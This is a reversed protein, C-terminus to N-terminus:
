MLSVHLKISIYYFGKYRQEIWRVYAKALGHSWDKTEKHIHHNKKRVDGTTKNEHNIMSIIYIYIYIYIYQYVETKVINADSIHCGGGKMPGVEAKAQWTGGM